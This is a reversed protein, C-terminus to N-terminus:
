GIFGEYEFPFLNVKHFFNLRSCIVFFNQEGLVQGITQFYFPPLYKRAYFMDILAEVYLFPYFKM